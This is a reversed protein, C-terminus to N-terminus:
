RGFLPPHSEEKELSSPLPPLDEISSLGFHELFSPTTGYLIARGLGETRGREKIFGKALLTSIAGDSKVGRIEEIELRTVPQRYAIISLVEMASQSLTTRKPRDVLKAIYPALDPRTTLQFHKSVEVIQIGRGERKWESQMDYLIDLVEEEKLEIIVALEKLTLGEDGSVFLLAELASKIEEYEM